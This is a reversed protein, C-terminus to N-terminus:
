PSPCRPDPYRIRVGLDGDPDTNDRFAADNLSFLISINEGLPLQIRSWSDFGIYFDEPIDTEFQPDFYSTITQTQYGSTRPGPSLYSNGDFFVGAMSYQATDPATREPSWTGTAMVEIFSGEAVIGPITYSSPLTRRDNQHIALYTGKPDIRLIDEITCAPVNGSRAVGTEKRIFMDYTDRDLPALPSDYFIFFRVIKSKDVSFSLLMTDSDFTAEESAAVRVFDLNAQLSGTTQPESPIEITVKGSASIFADVFISELLNLAFSSISKFIENSILLASVHDFIDVLLNVDEIKYFLEEAIDRHDRGTHSLSSMQTKVDLFFPIGSRGYLNLATDIGLIQVYKTDIMEQLAEAKPAVDKKMLYLYLGTLMKSAIFSAIPFPSLFLSSVVPLLSLFMANQISSYLRGSLLFMDQFNKEIIEEPSSAVNEESAASISSSISVTEAEEISDGLNTKLFLALVEKEREGLSSVASQISTHLADAVQYFQADEQTNFEDALTRIKGINERIFADADAVIDPPGVEVRSTYGFSPIHFIYTGQSVTEPVMFYYLNPNMPNPALTVGQRGLSAQLARPAGGRGRFHLMVVELPKISSMGVSVIGGSVTNSTGNRHDTVKLTPLYTGPYSFTHVVEPSKTFSSIKTETDAFMWVNSIDDDGGLSDVSGQFTFTFPDDGTREAEFSAYPHSSARGVYEKLEADGHVTTAAADIHRSWAEIRVGDGIDAHYRSGIFATRAGVYSGAGISLSGLPASPSIPEREVGKTRDDPDKLRGALLSLDGRVDIRSDKGVSVRFPSAVALSGAGIDTGGGLSVGTGEGEEGSSIISVADGTLHVGGLLVIDGDSALGIGHGGPADLKAQAGITIGGSATLRIGGDSSEVSRADAVTVSCTTSIELLQTKVDFDILLNRFSGDVFGGARRYTELAKMDSATFTESCRVAKTEEAVPYAGAFLASSLFASFFITFFTRTKNM